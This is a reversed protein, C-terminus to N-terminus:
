GGRDIEERKAFSPVRVYQYMGCECHEVIYIKSESIIPTGIPQWKHKHKFM